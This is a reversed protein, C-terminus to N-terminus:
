GTFIEGSANIRWAAGGVAIDVGDGGVAEWHTDYLRWVGGDRGILWVTDPGVAVASGGANMREMTQWTPGVGRWLEGAADLAWPRGTAGVAVRACAFGNGLWSHSEEDWRYLCSDTGILWVTGDAGVSIEGGNGPLQEFSSWGPGVGRWVQTASNTVWPRDNPGVAVRLGGGPMPDWGGGNWRWLGFDNNGVPNGGVIWVAGERGCAIRSGGGPVKRWAVPGKPPLAGRSSSWREFEPNAILIEGDDRLSLTADPVEPSLVRGPGDVAEIVLRGDERLGARGAITHDTHSHWPVFDDKRRYVVLNGNTQYTLKYAGNPSLLWQGPALKQGARLADSRQAGHSLTWYVVHDASLELRGDDYLTLRAGFTPAAPGQRWELVGDRAFASLTGGEDLSLRGGGRYINQSDYITAEKHYLVLNGAPKYVLEWAGNRSRLREGPALSSGALLCDSAVSAAVALSSVRIDAGLEPTDAAFVQVPGAEDPSLTVRFNEPVRLSRVAGLGWEGLQAADYRGIVISRRKGQYNPQEFLEVAPIPLTARWVGQITGVGTATIPRGDPTVAVRLAQAEFSTWASGTWFELTYGSGQAQRSVIFVQGGAGVGVDYASGPDRLKAWQGSTGRRWVAGSGTVVWPCGNPEVAVRNGKVVDSVWGDSQWREGTWRYAGGDTGTIWISGDAGVGIDEAKGTPLHTWSGAGDLYYIDNFSNVLWVQRQGPPGGASLNTCGAATAVFPQGGFFGASCSYVRYGGPVPLNSVFWATGDGDVGGIDVGNGGIYEWGLGTERKPASLVRVVFDFIKATDNFVKLLIEWLHEAFYRPLELVLVHLLGGALNSASVTLDLSFGDVRLEQDAVTLSLHSSAGFRWRGDPQRVLGIRLDHLDVAVPVLPLPIWLLWGLFLGQEPPLARIWDAITRTFNLDVRLNSTFELKEASMECHLDASVISGLGARMDLSLRGNDLLLRTASRLGLLSVAGDFWLTTLAGDRVVLGGQPGVAADEAGTM